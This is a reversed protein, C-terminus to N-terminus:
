SHEGHQLFETLFILLGRQDLQDGDAEHEADQERDGRRLGHRGDRNEAVQEDLGQFADRWDEDEHEDHVRHRLFIGIRARRHLRNHLEVDERREEGREDGNGVVSDSATGGSAFTAGGDPMM